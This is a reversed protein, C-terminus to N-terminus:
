LRAARTNKAVKWRSAVIVCPKKRQTQSNYFCSRCSRVAADVKGIM